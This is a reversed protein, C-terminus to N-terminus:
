QVRGIIYSGCAAYSIYSCTCKKEHGKPVERGTSSSWYSGDLYTNSKNCLFFLAGKNLGKPTCIVMAEISTLLAGYRATARLARRARLSRGVFRLCRLAHSWSLCLSYLWLPVGRAPHLRLSIICVRLTQVFSLFTLLLCPYRLVYRQGSVLVIITYDILIYLMDILM